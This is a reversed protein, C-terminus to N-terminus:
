TAGRPWPSARGEGLLFDLHSTADPSSTLTTTIPMELSSTASALPWCVRRMEAGETLQQLEMDKIRFSIKKLILSEHLAGEM